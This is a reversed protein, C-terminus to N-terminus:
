ATMSVLEGNTVRRPLYRLKRIYANVQQTNGAPDVGFGINAGPTGFAIGATANTSVALGDVTMARDASAFAMAAKHSGVVTVTKFVSNGDFAIIATGSSYFPAISSTTYGIVRGNASDTNFTMDVWWSGVTASHNISAPTRKIIDGQRLVASGATVIPSTAIPGTEL